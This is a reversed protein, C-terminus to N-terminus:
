CHKVILCIIIFNIMFIILQMAAFNNLLVLLFSVGILQFIINTNWIIFILSNNKIRNIWVPYSILLASLFVSIFYLANILIKYYSKVDINITTFNSFSSIMTFIGLLAIFGQSKPTNNELIKLSNFHLISYCLKKLKEQRKNKLTIIPSNDKIGIFGGKQKLIYHISFLVIVNAIMGPILGGINLTYQKVFMEWLMAVTFGFFMGYLVSKGTTRFGFVAALFPVTVVPMYFMSAWLFLELLTGSRLAFLISLIGIIASCIRTIFLENKVFNIKLSKSLDHILLVSSSNIYSDITSMIMAMVGALVLGKFGSITLNDNIISQIVNNENINQYSCLLLIGTFCVILAILCCLISSTIFASRAQWVDKAIVIRQFIAPNITPIFAWLFISFYFYIEINSFSFVYNFDFLPNNSIKTVILQYDNIKDFLVYAILPLIILFTLFQIVDTFAVAKIGGLASYLTILIGSIIIGYVIDIDLIHQFLTGAIKLQVAIIGSVGVAGAISTIIRVKNGYLDGIAEAVSLNGLFEQMRPIIFIATALLGLADAFIPIVIFILGNNYTETTITIFFEGSIWTAVITSVITITSFTKNGVAYERITKINRSSILGIVLTSILFVLFIYIDLDYTM